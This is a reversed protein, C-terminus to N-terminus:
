WCRNTCIIITTQIGIHQIHGNFYAMKKIERTSLLQRFSRPKVYNLELGFALDKNTPFSLVESSLGVYMPELYGITTRGYINNTLKYNSNAYLDKIRTETINLYNKLDTRVRPFKRKTGEM